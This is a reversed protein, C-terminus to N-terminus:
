SFLALRAANKQEAVRRMAAELRCAGAVVLNGQEAHKETWFALQEDPLKRARAAAKEFETFCANM